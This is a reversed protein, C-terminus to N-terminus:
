DVGVFTSPFLTSREREVLGKSVPFTGDGDIHASSSRQDSLLAHHQRNRPNTGSNVLEHVGNLAGVANKVFPLAVFDNGFTQCGHALQETKCLHHEFHSPFIFNGNSLCLCNAVDRQVVLTKTSPGPFVVPGVSNVVHERGFQRVKIQTGVADFAFNPRCALAVAVKHKPGYQSTYQRLPLQVRRFVYIVRQFGPFQFPNQVEVTM